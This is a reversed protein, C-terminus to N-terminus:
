GKRPQASEVSGFDNVGILVNLLDSTLKTMHCHTNCFPWSLNHGFFKLSNYIDENALTTPHTLQRASHTVQRKCAVCAGHWEEYPDNSSIEHCMITQQTLLLLPFALFDGSLRETHLM